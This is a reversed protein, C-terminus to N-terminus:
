SSGHPSLLTEPDVQGFDVTGDLDRGVIEELRGLVAWFEVQAERTSELARFIAARRVDSSSKRVPLEKLSRPVLYVSAFKFADDVM